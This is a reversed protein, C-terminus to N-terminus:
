RNLAPWTPCYWTEACRERMITRVESQFLYTVYRRGDAYYVVQVVREKVSNM